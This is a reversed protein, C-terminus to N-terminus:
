LDGKADQGRIERTYLGPEQILAVDNNDVLLNSCKLASAAESHHLNIQVVKIIAATPTGSNNRTRKSTGSGAGTAGKSICPTQEYRKNNIHKVLRM